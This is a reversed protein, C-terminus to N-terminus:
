FICVASIYATVNLEMLATPLLWISFPSHTIIDEKRQHRNGAKEGLLFMYDKEYLVRIYKITSIKPDLAQFHLASLMVRLSSPHTHTDQKNQSWIGAQWSRHTHLNSIETRSSRQWYLLWWGCTARSSKFHPLDFNLLPTFTICMRSKM